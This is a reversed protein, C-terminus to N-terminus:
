RTMAPESAGALQDAEPRQMASDPSGDAQWRAVPRVLLVPTGAQQLVSTAVSGLVLRSLGSRGHTAMVVIDAEAERAVQGIVWAPNGVAQQATARAGQAQLQDVQARLYQRASAREADEDWPLYAYGPGYLPYPPQDVVRLLVPEVGRGAALLETAEIAQEALESGDLPVLLRLPRDTPLPREADPPVLLVPTSSRQLVSDPVSGYLWRGFGSRGHISLVILEARQEDALDTIARAVEDAYVNRALDAIARAVNDSLISRSRHVVVDVPLGAARLADADLSLAARAAETAHVSSGPGYEPLVRTLVLRAGSSTALATAHPLARAAVDSGDLPVVITSLMPPAEETDTHRKRESVM